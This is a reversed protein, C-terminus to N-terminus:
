GPVRHRFTVLMRSVINLDLLEPTPLASGSAPSVWRQPAKTISCPNAHILICYTFSYQKLFVYLIRLVHHSQRPYKPRGGPRQPTAWCKRPPLHTRPSHAAGLHCRRAQPGAPALADSNTDSSDGLFSLPLRPPLHPSKAAPAEPCSPLPAAIVGLTVEPLFHILVWLGLFLGPAWFSPLLAGGWVLGVQTPEVGSVEMKNVQGTPGIEVRGQPQAEEPPWHEWESSDPTESARSHPCQCSSPASVHRRGAHPFPM